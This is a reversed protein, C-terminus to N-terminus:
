AFRFGPESVAMVSRAFFKFSKRLLVFIPRIVPLIVTVGCVPFAGRATVKRASFTTSGDPTVTGFVFKIQDIRPAFSVRVIMPVPGDIM